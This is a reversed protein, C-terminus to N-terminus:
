GVSPPMQLSSVCGLPRERLSHAPPAPAWMPAKGRVPETIPDHEHDRARSVLCTYECGGLGSPPRTIITVEEKGKAEEWGKIPPPPPNPCVGWLRM